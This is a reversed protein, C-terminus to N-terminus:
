SGRARRRQTNRFHLRTQLLRTRGMPSWFRSLHAAICGASSRKGHPLARGGPRAGSAPSPPSAQGGGSGSLHWILSSLNSASPQNPWATRHKRWAGLRRGALLSPDLLETEADIGPGDHQAACTGGRRRWSRSRRFAGAWGTGVRPGSARKSPANLPLSPRKCLANGGGRRRCYGAPPIQRNIPDLSGRSGIVRHASCPGSWSSKGPMPPLATAPSSGIKAATLAVPPLSRSSDHAVQAVGFTQQPALM